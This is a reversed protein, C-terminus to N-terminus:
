LQNPQFTHGAVKQWQWLSILTTPVNKHSYINNTLRFDVRFLSPPAKRHNISSTRLRQPELAGMGAVLSCKWYAYNANEISEPHRKAAPGIM